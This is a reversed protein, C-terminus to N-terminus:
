RGPFITGNPPFPSWLTGSLSTIFWCALEIWIPIFCKVKRFIINELLDRLIFLRRSKEGKPFRNFSPFKKAEIWVGDKTNFPVYFMRIIIIPSSGTQLPVSRQCRFSKHVREPPNRVLQSEAMKASNLQRFDQSIGNELKWRMLSGTQYFHELGSGQGM